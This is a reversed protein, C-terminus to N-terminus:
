ECTSADWFILRAGWSFILKQHIWIYRTQIRFWCNLWNVIFIILVLSEIRFKNFALSRLRFFFNDCWGCYFIFNILSILWDDWNSTKFFWIHVRGVILAFVNLMLIILLIFVFLACVVDKDTFAFFLFKLNRQSLWLIHRKHQLSHWCWFWFLHKLESNINVLRHVVVLSFQHMIFVERLIFWFM